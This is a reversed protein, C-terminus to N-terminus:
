VPAAEMGADMESMPRDAISVDYAEERYTREWVIDERRARRLSEAIEEAYRDGARDRDTAVELTWGLPLAESLADSWGGARVGIVPQGHQADFLWDREGERVICTSWMSRGGIASRAAANALVLGKTTHGAPVTSKLRGGGGMPASEPDLCRAVFSRAHMTADRLPFLIEFADRGWLKGRCRAWSPGIYGPPLVRIERDVSAADVGWGELVAAAAMSPRAGARWMERLHRDPPYTPEPAIYPAIPTLPPLDRRGGREVGAMRGLEDFLDKLEAPSPPAANPGHRRDHLWDPPGGGAGCSQCNWALSETDVSLSEPNKGGHIPCRARWNRGRRRSWKVGEFVLPANLRPRVESRYWDM